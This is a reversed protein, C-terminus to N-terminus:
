GDGGLFNIMIALVAERDKTVYDRKRQEIM